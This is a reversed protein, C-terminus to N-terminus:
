FSLLTNIRDLYLSRVSLTSWNNQTCRKWDLFQRYQNTLTNYRTYPFSAQAICLGFKVCGETDSDQFDRETVEQWPSSQEIAMQCKKGVKHQSIIMRPFLIWSKRKTYIGSFKTLIALPEAQTSASLFGDAACYPSHGSLSSYGAIKGTAHKLETCFDIAMGHQRWTDSYLVMYDIIM